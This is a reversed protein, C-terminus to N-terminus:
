SISEKGQRMRRGFHQPTRQSSLSTQRSAPSVILLMMPLMAVSANLHLAGFSFFAWDFALGLAVIRFAVQDNAVIERLATWERSIRGDRIRRRLQHRLGKAIWGAIYFAPLVPTSGTHFGAFASRRKCPAQKSRRLITTSRMMGFSIEQRARTVRLQGSTRNQFGPELHAAVQQRPRSHRTASGPRHDPDPASAPAVTCVAQM